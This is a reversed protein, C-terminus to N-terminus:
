LDTPRGVLVFECKCLDYIGKLLYEHMMQLIICM